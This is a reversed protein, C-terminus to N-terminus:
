VKKLTRNYLYINIQNDKKIMIRFQIQKNLEYSAYANIDIKLKKTKLRKIFNILGNLSNNSCKIYMKQFLMSWFIKNEPIEFIICSIKGETIKDKWKEALDGIMLIADKMINSLQMLGDVVDSNWNKLTPKVIDRIKGRQSWKPTSDFLYPINLSNAFEYINQKTINLMPRIFNIINEGFHVESIFDMGNLNEYKSKHAINTLINEFCDDNNHGLIVKPNKDVMLYTKYRVDRTYSEYLERLNYEMCKPRNIEDIRRIHLEINIKKCWDIVFNEEDISEKRNNYNIHVCIFPIKLFKLIYSSIMSDVGGSISMIFSETSIDINEKFSCILHQINTTTKIQEKELIKSFKSKIDDFNLTDIMIDDTNKLYKKITFTSQKITREYTAKLFQKYKSKESELKETELRHWTLNIVYRIKRFDKSHRLPLMLFAYEDANIEENFIFYVRMCYKIAKKNYEDEIHSVKLAPKTRCIHRIIQDYLIVMEIGYKKNTILKDEDVPITLLNEFLETILEDDKETSNFWIHNNSFWFDYLSAM